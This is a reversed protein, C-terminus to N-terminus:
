NDGRLRPSPVFTASPRRPFKNPTGGEPPPPFVDCGWGGLGVCAPRPFWHAKGSGQGLCHPSIAWIMPSSRGRVRVREGCAPRPFLEHAARPSPVLATSSCRAVGEGWSIPLPNPHPSIIKEITEGCAPRPFLHPPLVGQSNTRLEAKLRRPFVHCGWGWGGVGLCAPRPFWHAKSGGRGMFHPSQDHRPPFQAGPPSRYPTQCSNWPNARLIRNSSRCIWPGGCVCRGERAKGSEVWNTVMRSIRTSRMEPSVSFSRSPAPTLPFPRM